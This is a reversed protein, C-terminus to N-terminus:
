YVKFFGKEPLLPLFYDIYVKERPCQSKNLRKARLCSIGLCAGSFFCRDCKQSITDTHGVTWTINSQNLRDITDIPTALDVTCKFVCGDPYVLYSNNKSFSCVCTQADFAQLHSSFDFKYSSDNFSEIIKKYENMKM